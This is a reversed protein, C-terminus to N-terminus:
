SFPLVFVWRGSSAIMASAPSDELILARKHDRSPQIHIGGNEEVLSLCRLHQLSWPQFSMIGCFPPDGSLQPPESFLHGPFPASAPLKSHVLAPFFCPGLGKVTYKWLASTLFQIQGGAGM